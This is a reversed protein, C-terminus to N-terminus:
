SDFGCCRNRGGLRGPKRYFNSQTRRTDLNSKRNSPNVVVAVADRCYPVGILGSATQADTLKFSIYALDARHNVLQHIGELSGRGSLDVPTATQVGFAIVLNRMLELNSASGVVRMDADANLGLGVLLLCIVFYSRLAKHMHSRMKRM